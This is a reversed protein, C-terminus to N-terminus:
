NWPLWVAGCEDLDAELILEVVGEYQGVGAGDVLNELNKGPAQREAQVDVVAVDGHLRQLWIIGGTFLAEYGSNGESINRLRRDAIQGDCHGVSARHEVLVGVRRARCKHRDDVGAKGNESACSHVCAVASATGVWGRSRNNGVLVRKVDVVLAGRTDITSCDTDTDTNASSGGHVTCGHEENGLAVLLALCPM